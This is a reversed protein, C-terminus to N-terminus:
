TMTEIESVFTGVAEQYTPPFSSLDIKFLSLLFSDRSLENVYVTTKYHTSMPIAQANM